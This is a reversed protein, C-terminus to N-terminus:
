QWARSALSKLWKVRITRWSPRVWGTVVVMFACTLALSGSSFESLMRLPPWVFSLLRHMVLMPGDFQSRCSELKAGTFKFEFHLWQPMRNVDHKRAKDALAHAVDMAQQSLVTAQHRLWLRRAILRLNLTYAGDLLHRVTEREQRSM